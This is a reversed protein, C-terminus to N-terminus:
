FKWNLNNLTKLHSLRSPKSGVIKFNKKSLSSLRNSVQNHLFLKKTLFVHEYSPLVTKLSVFPLHKLRLIRYNKTKLSQISKKKLLKVSSNLVISHNYRYFKSM